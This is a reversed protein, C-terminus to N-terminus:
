MVGPEQEGQILGRKKMEEIIERVRGNSWGYRAAKAAAELKRVSSAGAQWLAFAKALDTPDIPRPKLDEMQPAQPAGPRPLPRLHPVQSQAAKVQEPVGVSSQFLGRRKLEFFIERAESDGYGLKAGLERYTMGPEYANLADRLVRGLGTGPHRQSAVGQSKSPVSRLRSRDTTAGDTAQDDPLTRTVLAEEDEDETRITPLMDLLAQFTQEDVKGRLQLLADITAERSPEPARTRAPLPREGNLSGRLAKMGPTVGGHPSNSKRLRHKERPKGPAFVFAEGDLLGMAEEPTIGFKQYERFDAPQTQRMLFMWSGQLARKDIEAIRQAALTFGMGRRRGRRVVTSFFARQLLALLSIKKVQKDKGRALPEEEEEEEDLPADPDDVLMSSLVSERPNQPLWVSAEDLVIECPIRVERAEQWARVGKIMNIMIWAAEEDEFSQLNIICQYRRELITQATQFANQATLRKSTDLWMPNPLYARNCLARNEDDTDFLIIAPAPDLKGLEECYVNMTNTKGSGSTGLMVKRGSLLSDAHPELTPGLDLYDSQDDPPSLSDAGELEEELEQPPANVNPHLHRGWLRDWTSWEGVVARARKREAMGDLLEVVPQPLSDRMEAYLKPSNVALAIAAGLGFLEAPLPAHLLAPLGMTVLASSGFVAAKKSFSFAPSTQEWDQGQAPDDRLAVQRNRAFPDSCPECLTMVDAEQECGLNEFTRHYANLNVNEANCIQCRNGAKKLAGKQTEQWEPTLLYQSLPMTRLEELRAQERKM